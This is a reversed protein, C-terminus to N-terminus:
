GDKNMYKVMNLCFEDFFDVAMDWTEGRAEGFGYKAFCRNIGARRGAELDTHNDGLIWTTEPNASNREIIIQISGPDPKLPYSDCAGYIGGTFCSILGLEDLITECPRQPKNTSIALAIGAQCLRKLGPGVGPYLRTRKNLNRYYHKILAEFAEDLAIDADFISREALKRSGNGVFSTVKEMALPPLGYDSRMGNVSATLDQRSDILTGDLDFIILEAAHTM